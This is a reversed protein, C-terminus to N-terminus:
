LTLGLPLTGDSNSGLVGGGMLPSLEGMLELISKAGAPKEVKVEKNYDFLAVRVKYTTGEQEVSAALQTILRDKKSVWLEFPYKSLDAKAFEDIQAQEIKLSAVNANKVAELFSKLKANDISAEVHYSGQGKIDQDDLRKNIKLFQNSKYAEKIKNADETSLKQQEIAVGSQGTIQKVLSEDIMYWNNNVAQIIPAIQQTMAAAMEPNSSASAGAAAALLQDIGNLGSLRIYYSKSDASKIDLGVETVATRLKLQLDVAGAVSSAGTFTLGSIGKSIEGGEFTVEGEFGVSTVKESNITNGIADAAIRQPQNPVVVAYYAAAVGGALVLVAAVITALLILKKKKGGSSQTGGSVAAPAAPLVPSAPAPETSASVPAGFSQGAPSPAETTASAPAIVQPGDVTGASTPVEPASDPMQPATPESIPNTDTKPEENPQM